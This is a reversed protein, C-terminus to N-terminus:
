WQSLHLHGLTIFLYSDADCNAIADGISFSRDHNAPNAGQFHGTIGTGNPGEYENVSGVKAWVQVCVLPSGADPLLYVDLGNDLTAKELRPRIDGGGLVLPADPAPEPPTTVPASPCGLLLLALLATRRM